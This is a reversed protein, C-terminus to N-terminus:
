SYVFTSKKTGTIRTPVVGKTYGYNRMYMVMQICFTEATPAVHFSNHAFSYAETETMLPHHTSLTSIIVYLDHRAQTTSRDCCFERDSRTSCKAAGERSEKPHLLPM